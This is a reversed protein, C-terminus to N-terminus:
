LSSVDTLMWTVFFICGDVDLDCLFGDVDLDCLLYM